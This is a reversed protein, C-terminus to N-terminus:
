PASVRQLSARRPDSARDLAAEYTALTAAVLGDIGHESATARGASGMSAALEDDGLVRNIATALAAADRPPVLLGNRGDCVTSPIGGTRSAVVPTAAAMAELLVRGREEYWSPLVVVDAHELYPRVDPQPVAGVFRVRGDTGLRGAAIELAARDRGDGVIMLRAGEVSLRGFADVLERVGKERVLRGAYVIWRGEDMSAPRPLPRGNGLDIGMPVVRVRSAPIGAGVLREALRDTLVLVAGAAQLLRSQAPGGISRIITSRTDHGVLTHRVSCHVTAVLPVGARSAAWRALPVVAVDEGLHVHVLDVGGARLVEPVSAVGYLQRFRRVHAGARIVRSRAGVLQTRPAGPRYATIVTQEVGLADLGETLRATHVQMGGFADFAHTGTLTEPPAEYVSCLRLVRM